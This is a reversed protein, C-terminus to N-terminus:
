GDPFTLHTSTINGAYDPLNAPVIPTDVGPPGGPICPAAAAPIAPAIFQPLPHAHNDHMDAIAPNLTDNIYEELHEAIAASVAGDGFVTTADADKDSVGFGAGGGHVTEFVPVSGDLRAIHDGGAMSCELLPVSQDLKLVTDAEALSVELKPTEADFEITHKESGPEGDLAIRLNGKETTLYIQHKNLFGIKLSGDPEIEIRTYKEPEPAAGPELQEGMHTLYIRPDGDTDDFVLVHGWPTSFGRRKGYNTSVFDDHIPSTVSGDADDELEIDTHFRKGRWVPALAEMQSQGWVEDRDSSVVFEIEVQEGVDPIYFWGWDHAPECLQPLPTEADGMIAPCLVEIVGRNNMEDDDFEISSVIAEYKETTVPM